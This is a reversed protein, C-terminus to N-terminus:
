YSKHVTAGYWQTTIIIDNHAFHTPEHLVENFATQICHSQFAIHSHQSRAITVKPQIKKLNAERVFIFTPLAKLKLLVGLLNFRATEVIILGNPLVVFRV